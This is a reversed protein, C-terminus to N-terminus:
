HYANIKLYIDFNLITMFSVKALPRSFIAFRDIMAYTKYFETLIMELKKPCIVM